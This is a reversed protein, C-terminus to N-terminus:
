LYSAEQPDLQFVSRHPDLGKICYRYETCYAIIVLIELPVELRVVRQFADSRIRGKYCNSCFFYPDEPVRTNNETVWMAACFLTLDLNM